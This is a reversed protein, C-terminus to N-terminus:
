KKAVRRFFITNLHRFDCGQHNLHSFSTSFRKTRTTQKKVLHPPAPPARPAASGRTNGSTACTSPSSSAATNRSTVAASLTPSPVRRSWRATTASSTQTTQSYMDFDHAIRQGRSNGPLLEHEDASGDMSVKGLSQATTKTALGRQMQSRPLRASESPPPRRDTRTASAGCATSAGRRAGREVRQLASRYTRLNDNGFVLSCLHDFLISCM